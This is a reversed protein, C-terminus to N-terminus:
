QRNFFKQLKLDGVNVIYGRNDQSILLLPFLFLFFHIKEFVANNNKSKQRLKQFLKLISM